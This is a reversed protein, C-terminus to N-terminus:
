EAPPASSVRPESYTMELAMVASRHRIHEPTTLRGIEVHRDWIDRRLSAHHSQSRQLAHLLVAEQRRVHVLGVAIVTLGLIIWAMRASFSM